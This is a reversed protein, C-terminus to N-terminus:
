WTPPGNRVIDVQLLQVNVQQPEPVHGLGKGQLRNVWKDVHVFNQLLSSPYQLPWVAPGCSQVPDFPACTAQLAGSTQALALSWLGLNVLLGTEAARGIEVAEAPDVLFILCLWVTSHCVPSGTCLNIQSLTMDSIYTTLLDPSVCWIM